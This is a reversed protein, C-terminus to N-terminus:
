NDFTLWTQGGTPLGPFEVQMIGLHKHAYFGMTWDFNNFWVLFLCMSLLM